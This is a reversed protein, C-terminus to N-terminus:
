ILYFHRIGRVNSNIPDAKSNIPTPNPPEKKGSAYKIEQITNAEIEPHWKFGAIEKPTKIM